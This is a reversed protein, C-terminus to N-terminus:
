NRLWGHPYKEAWEIPKEFYRGLFHRPHAMAWAAARPGIRAWGGKILIFKPRLTEPEVTCRHNTTHKDFIRRIRRLFSLQEPEWPYYVGQFEGEALELYQNPEYGPPADGAMKTWGQAYITSPGFSFHLPPQNVLGPLGCRNKEWLPSWNPPEVWVDHGIKGDTGGLTEFYEINWSSEPTAIVPHEYRGARWAEQYALSANTAEWDILTPFRLFRLRPFAAVLSAAIARLDERMLYLYQRSIFRAGGERRSPM